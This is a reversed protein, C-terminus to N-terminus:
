LIKLSFTVAVRDEPPAWNSTMQCLSSQPWCHFFHTSGSSSTVPMSLTAMLGSSAKMLSSPLNVATGM